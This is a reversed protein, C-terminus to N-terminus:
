KTQFIEKLSLKRSYQLAGYHFAHIAIKITIIATVALISLSIAIETLSLNGVANRILLPIPATFPFTSLFQIIPSEPASVFLPAAYLPGFILMMIVGFFSNAEKSTPTIAGIAVLLGTFLMYSLAFIVFATLIRAPDIPISSLDISPLSLQDRFLLYGTLAPLIILLMQLFGLAMLSIIKGVILTRSEITTLIMEIVRNEKEETTSNLMQNSFMAILIYFVVLFIGPAIIELIGDHKQGDKYITSSYQTTDSVIARTEPDISQEASKTLMAKAVANYRSNDFIGVEKGYVEIPHKDLADPYYFFSDVKGEKVDAIADQKDNAPKAGIAAAIQPKIKGSQDLYLISFQQKEANEVADATAKNSFFIIGFIAAMMIPFLLALMWFSKKKLTRVIEFRIVTSLNHMSNM